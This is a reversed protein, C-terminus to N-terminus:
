RVPVLEVVDLVSEFRPYPVVLRWRRPGVREVTGAMDRTADRGYDFARVEDGLVLAGLFVQRYRGDDFLVGTPRQSGDLKTLRTEMGDAAVRCRFGPYAVYDLNDPGKAGLKFVRCRYDGAPPRANALAVDPDFLVGQAAIARANMTRAKALADVWAQRTNRLRDRDADSVVTRWNTAVGDRALAPAVALASALVSLM